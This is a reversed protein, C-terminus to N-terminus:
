EQVEERARPRHGTYDYLFLIVDWVEEESLFHEWSPMASSWPTAEDPLGPGGKSIRWFLYGEQLMAITTPDQFNAPIPDFGHAFIGDGEMNDGHCFVCNEYYVRRGELVHAAFAERDTTELKRYPNEVTVLDMKKGKFTIEAPPVPHITRGSVPPSPQRTSDTYIRWAVLLPLAILVLILPVRYARDVMFKVLADRAERMRGSDASVFALSALTIIFMFMVVISSPLPPDIGYRFAVYIAVWWVVMWILANPKVLRIALMAVIIAAFVIINM